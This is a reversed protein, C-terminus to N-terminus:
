ISKWRRDPRARYYELGFALFSGLLLGVAVGWVLYLPRKPWIPSKPVFPEQLLSIYTDKNQSELYMAVELYSYKKLLDQFLDRSAPDVKESSFRQSVTPHGKGEGVSTVLNSLQDLKRNLLAIKPHKNSYTAQLVNIQARIREVEESVLDPRLSLESTGSQSTQKGFALSELQDRIATYLSVLKQKRTEEMNKKLRDLFEIMVKYGLNPDEAFFGILFSTSGSPIVDFKKGIEDVEYSSHEASEKEFLNYRTGIERLFEHNLTKKILSERQARLEHSDYTEPLFDRVLPLQFYGTQLTIATTIKYNKPVYKFIVM